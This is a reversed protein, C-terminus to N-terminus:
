RSSRGEALWKGTLRYVDASEDGSGYYQMIYKALSIAM